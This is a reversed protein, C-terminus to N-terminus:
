SASWRASRSSDARLLRSTASAVVSSTITTASGAAYASARNRVLNRATALPQIRTLWTNGTTRIMM